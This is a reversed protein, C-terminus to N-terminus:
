RVAEQTAAVVSWRQLKKEFSMTAHAPSTSPLTGYAISRGGLDLDPEVLRQFLRAAATGNFFIREVAPHRALFAPFDNATATSVDIAADLSGHRVSARLVDWVGIGAAVLRRCREPYDLEPGADYLAAMIRWFANRPHGYYHSSELSRQSPLTGLILTHIDPGALPPFGPTRRDTM